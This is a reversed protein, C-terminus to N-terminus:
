WGTATLEFMYLYIAFAHVFIYCESVCTCTKIKVKDPVYTYFICAIVGALTSISDQFHTLSHKIQIYMCKVTHTQTIYWNCASSNTLYVYSLM